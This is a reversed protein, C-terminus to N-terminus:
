ALFGKSAPKTKSEEAAKMMQVLLTNRRRATEREDGTKKEEKDKGLGSAAAAIQTAQIQHSFQM